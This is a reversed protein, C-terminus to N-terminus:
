KCMDDFGVEEGRKHDEESLHASLAVVLAEKRNSGAKSFINNHLIISKPSQLDVVMLNKIDQNLSSKIKECVEFGDMIPM